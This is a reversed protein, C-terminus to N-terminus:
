LAASSIASIASKISFFEIVLKPLASKFRSSEYLEAFKSLNFSTSFKDVICLRKAFHVYFFNGCPSEIVTPM